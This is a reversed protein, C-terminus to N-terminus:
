MPLMCTCQMIHHKFKKGQCIEFIMHWIGYIMYTFTCKLSVCVFFHPFQVWIPVGGEGLKSIKSHPAAWRRFLIVTLSIQEIRLTEFSHVIMCFTWVHRWKIINKKKEMRGWKEHIYYFITQSVHYVFDGFVSNM